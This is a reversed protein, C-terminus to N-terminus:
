HAVDGVEGLYYGIFHSKKFFPGNTVLRHRREDQEAAKSTSSEELPCQYTKSSCKPYSHLYSLKM